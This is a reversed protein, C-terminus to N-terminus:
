DDASPTDDPTHVRMPVLVVRERVGVSGAYLLGALLVPQGEGLLPKSLPTSIGFLAAAAFAYGIAGRGRQAPM